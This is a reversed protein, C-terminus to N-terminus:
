SVISSENIMTEWHEKRSANFKTTLDSGDLDKGLYQWSFSETFIEYPDRNSLLGLCVCSIFSFSPVVGEISLADLQYILLVICYKKRVRRGAHVRFRHLM